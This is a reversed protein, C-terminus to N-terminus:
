RKTKRDQGMYYPLLVRDRITSIIHFMLMPPVANGLLELAKSKNVPLNYDQPFTMIKRREKMSPKRDGEAFHFDISDASTLTCCVDTKLRFASGFNRDTFGIIGTVVEEIPIHRGLPKPFIVTSGVDKRIFIFIIRQRSQPVEFDMADLIEYKSYYNLQSADFMIKDLLPKFSPDDLAAVNEMVVVKPYLATPVMYKFVQRYLFNMPHNWRAKSNTRSIYKCPPSAELLDLEGPKLRSIVLLEEPTVTRVDKNLYPANGFIHRNAEFADRADPNIDCAFMEKFGAKIAGISSGGGCTFLSGFKLEKKAKMIM